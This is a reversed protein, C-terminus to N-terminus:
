KKSKKDSSLKRIEATLEAVEKRLSRNDEVAERARVAEETYMKDAKDARKTEATLSAQSAKMDGTLSHLSTKTEEVLEGLEIIEEKQSEVAVDLQSKMDAIESKHKAGLEIFERQHATNLKSVEAAAKEILEARTERLDESYGRANAEIRAELAAVQGIKQDRSSRADKLDEELDEIKSASETSLGEKEAELKEVEDQKEDVLGSVDKLEETITALKEKLGEREANYAAEATAKVQTFLDDALTTFMEKVSAPAKEAIIIANSVAKYINSVQTYNGGVIKYIARATVKDGAEELQKIAAKVNAESAKPERKIAIEEIVRTDETM